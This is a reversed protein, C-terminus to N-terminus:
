VSLVSDGCVELCIPCPPANEVAGLSRQTDALLASYHAPRTSTRVSVTPEQPFASSIFQLLRSHPGSTAGDGVNIYPLVGSARGRGVALPAVPQRKTAQARALRTTAPALGAAPCDAAVATSSDAAPWARRLVSVVARGSDRAGVGVPEDNAHHTGPQ